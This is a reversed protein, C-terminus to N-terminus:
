VGGVGSCVGLEVRVCRPSGAGGCQGGLLVVGHKEPGRGGGGCGRRVGVCVGRGGVCVGRRGREGAGRWWVCVGVQTLRMSVHKSLPVLLPRGTAALKAVLPLYGLLGLGVGHLFVLPTTNQGALSPGKAGQQKHQVQQKDAQKQQQKATQQQHQQQDEQQARSSSSSSFSSLSIFLSLLSSSWPSPTTGPLNISYVPIGQVNTSQFGLLTFMFHSLAALAEMVLYFTLPKYTHPVDQRLHDMFRCSPNSGPKFKINFLQELSDLLAEAKPLQGAAAMQQRCCLILLPRPPPPPHSPLTRVSSSPNLLSTRCICQQQQLLPCFVDCGWGLWITVCSSSSM